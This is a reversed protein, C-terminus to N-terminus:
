FSSLLGYPTEGELGDTRDKLRGSSILNIAQDINVEGM